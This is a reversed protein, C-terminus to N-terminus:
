LVIVTTFRKGIGKNANALSSAVLLFVLVPAIGKLAGVFIDGLVAVATAGPVILALVAGIVFGTVIRIILNISNWKNWIRGFFGKKAEM